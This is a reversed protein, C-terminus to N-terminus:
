IRLEVFHTTQSFSDVTETTFNKLVGLTALQEFIRLSPRDGTHKTTFFILKTKKNKNL